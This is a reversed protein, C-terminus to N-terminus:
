ANDTNCYFIKSCEERKLENLTKRKKVKYGTFYSRIFLM